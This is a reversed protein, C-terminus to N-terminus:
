RTLTVERRTENGAADAAIVTLRHAGPSAARADWYGVYLGLDPQFLPAPLPKGDLLLAVRAVGIDDSARVKITPVARSLRATAPEVLAVEPAVTDYGAVRWFEEAIALHGANNPHFDGWQVYTLVKEQGQFREHVAAVGIGRRAAEEALAANFREVWWADSRALRADGPYPNYVTMTFIDGARAGDRATAAVLRDFIEAVNARFEALGAEKQADPKGQLARMDNGGIDVTVPSVRWGREHAAAIATAADDLQGSTLLSKATEGSISFNELEVPRGAQRELLAHFQAVYGRTRPASSTLGVGLSDGLAVYLEGIGERAAGAPQGGAVPGVGGALMVAAIALLRGARVLAGGLRALRSRDRAM